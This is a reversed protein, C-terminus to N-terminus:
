YHRWYHRGPRGEKCKQKVHKTDDPFADILGQYLKSILKLPKDSQSLITEFKSDDPKDLTKKYLPFLTNYRCFNVEAGDCVPKEQNYSGATVGTV